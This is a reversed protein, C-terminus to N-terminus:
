ATHLHLLARCREGFSPIEPCEFYVQRNLAMLLQVAELQSDHASFSGGQYVFEDALYEIAHGLIVLAHGAEPTIHRRRNSSLPTVSVAQSLAPVQFGTTASAAM